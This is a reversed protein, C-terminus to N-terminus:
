ALWRAGSTLTHTAWSLRRGKWFADWNASPLRVTVGYIFLNNFWVPLGSLWWCRLSRLGTYPNCCGQCFTLNTGCPSPMKTCLSWLLLGLLMAFTHMPRNMVLEMQSFTCFEQPFNLRHPHVDPCPLTHMYRLWELQTSPRLSWGYATLTEPLIAVGKRVEVDLGTRQEAFHECEWFRHYRSDTCPCWPCLDTSQDQCHVKCDQTMHTANLVKRFAGQAGISLQHLWRRTHGADVFQLGNLRNRHHMQQAITYPWSFEMRFTLEASGISLLNFQGVHDEIMGTPLISWGLKRIRAALTSSVSNSPGKFSGSGIAALSNRVQAHPGMQRADKLTQVVAWYGPDTLPHEVLGLHILPSAGAADTELSKMAATRLTRLAQISITTSSVGHLARPWAAVRIARVKMNYPSPSAKLKPWLPKLDTFRQTLTMNTHKKSLQIHAGLSRSCQAVHLHNARLRARSQPCLSWAYTKTRDLELDMMSTFRAVSDLLAELSDSDTTIVQWDDVYTLTCALPNQAALWRDLLFDVAVMGVVSMGDGEAFGTSSPLLPGVFSKVQFCRRMSSVAGFWGHLVGFPLGLIALSEAVVLRPLCNFAKTLDAVIGGMKINETHATELAWLMKTWLQGAFHRPRSGYLGSPLDAELAVLAQHAHWSTWCRYLLSFVTIPRFHEPICALGHKPVATVRGNTIQAPWIGTQQAESFLDCFNQLASTPMSTLDHLSVGDLGRATTKKKKAISTALTSPTLDPWQLTRRPLAEHAFSLIQQWQSAPVDKHREWRPTWVDAFAQFIEDPNGVHTQQVVQAGVAVQDLSELWLSDHDAHIVPLPKGACFIPEELKWTCPAELVVCLEAPDLSVIKASTRSQLIEASADTAEKLDQFIMMPNRARRLQSYQYSTSRLEKEFHRVALVVSQYMGVAQTHDPPMVPCCEPAGPVRHPQSKWWKCFGQSFGRARLISNWLAVAHDTKCALPRNQVHRVYSQLRRAQRFWQAYRFSLGSFLPQLDGKRSPKMPAVETHKYTRTFEAKGRGRCGRTVQATAASAAADELGSWLSEYRDAPSGVSTSWLDSAVDFSAPWPFMSPPNWVKRPALKNVHQFVGQLLSHDPWQDHKIAVDVLLEQLEPSLFCYDRRTRGKCTMAIPCGWREWAVQQLDKFGHEHLLSFAPLSGESVNWDGSVMRLGRSLCCVQSAVASLLANNHAFHNPHAGGEPEGYMTGVTIWMDRLHTVTVVARASREIAEPWHCIVRRTPHRAITAVGKWSGASASHARAPTPHGAICRHRSGVFRLSSRFASLARSSLHTESVSWIDGYELDHKIQAAKNGLGSPNFCGLVFRDGLDEQSNPGPNMAEGIRFFAFLLLLLRMCPFQSRSRCFQPLDHRFQGCFQRHPEVQSHCSSLKFMALPILAFAIVWAYKTCGLIWCLVVVVFAALVPISQREGNQWADMDDASRKSLMSRLQGLQSEFLAQLGQHHAEMKGHLQQTQAHIQAQLGAMQQSQHNSQDALTKELHQHKQSLQQMQSELTTLRDPTDDRDMPIVQPSPIKAMISKEIRQELKVLSEQASPQTPMVGRAPGQWGKWPDHSQLLDVQSSPGAAAPKSGCLALTAATAVPPLQTLSNNAEQKLATIMVEGHSMMLVTSPPASVAHLLWMNGRGAIPMSPQVAKVSWNAKAFAASIASRDVGYPFPGGTFELKQGTPLYVQGPKLAKHLDCAETAKARFGRREQLRALGIVEPRTQKVHIMESPTLKTTWIVAFDSDIKLGDSSRPECYVGDIGSAALLQDRLCLPVRIFVVYMSADSPRCPRFGTQLFQRRWVDVLPDSIPLGEANHWCPCECNQATCISLLPLKSVLYRIPAKTVEDWTGPTEDRYMMIKMACADFTQMQIPNDGVNKRVPVAGLQFMTAQVIIPEHNVNCTCPVSVEQHVLKTSFGTVDGLVLMALAETSVQQSAKIYPEATLADVLVIGCATPGLQSVTLQALTRDQVKFAGSIVCLKGPDMPAHELSRKKTQKAVKRKIGVPQSKNTAIVQKLEDPTLFQFRVHNGVTKLQRWPNTHALARDITDVGIAKIAKSARDGSYEHPVGKERLLSSLRDAVTDKSGLAWCWPRTCRDLGELAAVFKARLKSQVGEAEFCSEPLETRNLVHSLFALAMAGCHTSKFFLRHHRCVVKESCGFIHQIASTLADLDSHDAEADDWTWVCLKNNQAVCQIPIWHGHSCLVTVLVGGALVTPALQMLVSRCLTTPGAFCTSVLLPDIYVAMKVGEHSMRQNRSIVIQQLHFRIEDDAMLTQQVALLATREAITFHQSQVAHWHMETGIEPLALTTLQEPTLNLFPTVPSFGQHLQTGADIPALDIPERAPVSWLCTPSCVVEPTEEVCTAIVELPPAVDERLPEPESIEMPQSPSSLVNEPLRPILKSERMLLTGAMRPLPSSEWLGEIPTGLAFTLFQHPWAVYIHGPLVRTNWPICWGEANTVEHPEPCSYLRSEARVISAVTTTPTVDIYLPASLDDIWFLCCQNSLRSRDLMGDLRLPTLSFAFELLTLAPTCVDVQAPDTSDVEREPPVDQTADGAADAVVSMFGDEKSVEPMVDASASNCLALSEAIEQTFPQPDRSGEIVDSTGHTESPVQVRIIHDLVHGITFFEPLVELWRQRDMLESLSLSESNNWFEVLRVFKEDQSCPLDSPWIMQCRHVTWSRLAQFTFLHPLVAECCALGQCHEAIQAFVWAAQLPAALQGAACLVLKMDDGFNIAPDFSNLALCENPHIHRYRVVDDDIMSVLLGFLGRSALRESSLGFQRCGCACGSLQSGWAHLACPAKSRLNLLYKLVRDTDAGFAAVEVPTLELQREDSDKWRLVEPIVQSVTQIENMSPFGKLDIPGIWPASLICWWRPRSSVWVEDLQLQVQSCHFGSMQCFAEIEGQVFKDSAAPRVCELVLLQAHLLWAARLTQPLALSRPDCSSLQDGLNSFPQCSFGSSMAGPYPMKMAIEAITSNDGICGHILVAPSHEAYLSLLKSNHDVAVTPTFGCAAAGAGLAGMGSCLEVLSHLGKWTPSDWTLIRGRSSMKLVPVPYVQSITADLLTYSEHGFSMMASLYFKQGRPLLEMLHADHSHDFCVLRAVLSVPSDVPMTGLDGFHAHLFDVM